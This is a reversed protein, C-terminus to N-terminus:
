GPQPLEEMAAGGFRSADGVLLWGHELHQGAAGGIMLILELVLDLLIEVVLELEAAGMLVVLAQDAVGFRAVVSWWFRGLCEGLQGGLAGDVVGPREM